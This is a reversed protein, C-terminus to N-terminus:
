KNFWMVHTFEVNDLVRNNKFDSPSIIKNSMKETTAYYGHGDYDIFGGADVNDKFEEMTMLHGYDPLDGWEVPELLTMDHGIKDLSKRVDASKVLMEEWSLGDKICEDQIKYYEKELQNYLKELAELETM